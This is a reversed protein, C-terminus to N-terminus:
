VEGVHEQSEYVNSIYNNREKLKTAYESAEKLSEFNNIGLLDKEQTYVEVIWPKNNM